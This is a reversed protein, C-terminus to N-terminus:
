LTSFFNVGFQTTQPRGERLEGGLVSSLEDVREIQVLEEIDELFDDGAVSVSIHEVANSRDCIAIDGMRLEEDFSEPPVGGGFAEAGEEGSVALELLGDHDEVLGGAQHPSGPRLRNCATNSWKSEEGLNNYESKRQAPFFGANQGEKSSNPQTTLTRVLNLSNSEAQDSIRSRIPLSSSGVKTEWHLLSDQGKTTNAEQKM